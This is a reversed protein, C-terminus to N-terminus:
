EKVVYMKDVSEISLRNILVRVLKNDNKTAGIIGQPNFTDLSIDM